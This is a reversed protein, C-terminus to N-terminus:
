FTVRSRAWESSLTRHGNLGYTKWLFGLLPFRSAWRGLLFFNLGMKLRRGRDTTWGLRGDFNRGRQAPPRVGRVGVGGSEEGSGTFGCSGGGEGSSGLLLPARAVGGIASRRLGPARWFVGGAETLDYWRVGGTSKQHAEKQQTDTCAFAAAAERQGRTELFGERRPNPRYPRTRDVVERADWKTM